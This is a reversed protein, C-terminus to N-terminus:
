CHQCNGPQIQKVAIRYSSTSIIVTFTFKSIIINNNNNIIIIISNISITTVSFKLQLRVIALKYIIIGYKGGL